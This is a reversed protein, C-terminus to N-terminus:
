ETLLFYSLTVRFRLAPALLPQRRAGRSRFFSADALGFHLGHEDAEEVAASHDMPIENWRSLCNILDEVTSYQISRSFPDVSHTGVDRSSPNEVVVVCRTVCREADRLKQVILEPLDNDLKPLRTCSVKLLQTPDDSSLSIYTEITLFVFIVVTHQYM